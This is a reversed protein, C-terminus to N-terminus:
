NIVKSEPFLLDLVNQTLRVGEGQYPFVHMHMAPNFNAEIIGYSNKTEYPNVEKDPIILDIGSIKAGLAEVAAVAIEKYENRFDNTVDLSDGGTSVNSNERLYVIADKPLVDDVKYGQEKLMLREIEGLQIIELPSRHHTGRLPDKNKETVLEQITSVGDGKVNAPVRLMIAETQGDIVFFRYETGSIFEEVLVESDEKFAIRLAEQYAEFSAGDKFISIGIGYNTSKPKIVIGQSEFQSYSALAEELSSFEEGKPVRFGAQSLIKKTVTKNEMILPVVYKDKSTMNGNKVYEIKGAYSLKLFQDHRDLVEVEIGRQLADFMLIQTSLEMDRFGALQYPKEWAANSYAQGQTVALDKNTLGDDFLVQMKGSLTEEPQELMKLARDILVVWSPKSDLVKLMEKMGELLNKGEEKLSTESLPHELSVQDNLRTGDKLLQDLDDGSDELWLMYMLFVQFFEIGELAIGYPAFPDLDINRIEVYQVGVEKLDAVQKGGRLRVPSYFEKEESLVGKEVLDEIDQIYKEISQYSVFVEEHNTYGYPSNRLSRVPERPSQDETFYRPESVPSAGYLYTILWRYRLYNRAVKLYIETKFKEICTFETQVAFLAEIFKTSFEFNYHIGSVMQKRKGYSRALYRRYLVDEFRDLKAIVIDEELEPLEPPMSLPWLMEDKNMSRLAVEHIAGLYDLVEQATEVAPTILEIQTESFDTQVTSHLSRNGLVAPHDTKALEGTLSVRQSEKELGFRAKKFLPRINEQRLYTQM